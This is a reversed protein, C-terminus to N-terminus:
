AETYTITAESGVSASAYLTDGSKVKIAKSEGSPVTDMIATTEDPMSTQNTVQVIGSEVYMSGTQTSIAKYASTLPIRTTPM